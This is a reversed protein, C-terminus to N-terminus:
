FARGGRLDQRGITPMDNSEIAREPLMLLGHAISFPRKVGGWSDPLTNTKLPDRCWPQLPSVPLKGEEM